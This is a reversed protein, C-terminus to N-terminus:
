AANSATDTTSLSPTLTANLDDFGGVYAKGKFIQPVTRVDKGVLASLADQTIGEDHINVYRYALGQEELLQKARRCFGCNDHGFITYRSM